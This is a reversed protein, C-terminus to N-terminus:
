IKQCLFKQTIKRKIKFKSKPISHVINKDCIGEDVLHSWFSSMVNKKTDITSPSIGNTILEELYVIIDTKSLSNIVSDTIESISECSIRKHEIMWNLM